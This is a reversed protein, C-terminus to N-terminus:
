GNIAAIPKDVADPMSSAAFVTRLRDHRNELLHGYINATVAISSHGLVVKSDNLPVGASIVMSAYTHRRDHFRITSPLEARRLRTEM